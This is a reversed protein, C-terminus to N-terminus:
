APWATLKTPLAASVSPKTDVSEHNKGAPFGAVLETSLGPAITKEDEPIKVADSVVTSLSPTLSGLGGIRVIVTCGSLSPTFITVGNAFAVTLPETATVTLAVPVVPLEFAKLNPTSMPPGGRGVVVAGCWFSVTLPVLAVKM